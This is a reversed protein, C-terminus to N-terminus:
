RRVFIVLLVIFPVYTFLSVVSLVRCRFRWSKADSCLFVMTWCHTVLECVRPLPTFRTGRVMSSKHTM